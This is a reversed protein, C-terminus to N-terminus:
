PNEGKTASDLQLQWVRIVQDHRPDEEFTFLLSDGAFGGVFQHRLRHRALLRGSATSRVDLFYEHRLVAQDVELMVPRNEAAARARTAPDPKWRVNRRSILVWLHDGRVAADKVHPDYRGRRALEGFDGRLSLVARGGRSYATMGYDRSIAWARGDTSVAVQRLWGAPSDVKMPLPMRPAGGNNVVWLPGTQSAEGVLLNVVLGSDPYEAVDVPVGLTRFSRAYRLDPGFVEVRGSGDVVFLSDGAVTHVSEVGEFEGPGSGKRGLTRDLRGDPTFVAVEHGSALPAAYYRGQRDTAVHTRLLFDVRQSDPILVTLPEVTVACDGCAAREGGGRCGSLLLSVTAMFVLRARLQPRILARM